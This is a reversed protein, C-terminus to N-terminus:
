DISFFLKVIKQIFNFHSNIELNLIFGTCIGTEERFTDAESATLATRGILIRRSLWIRRQYDSALLKRENYKEIHQAAASDPVCNM